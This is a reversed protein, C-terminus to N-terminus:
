LCIKRKENNTIHSKTLQKHGLPSSQLAKAQAQWDIKKDTTTTIQERKILSKTLKEEAISNYLTDNIQQRIINNKCIITPHM